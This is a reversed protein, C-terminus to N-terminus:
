LNPKIIQSGCVCLFTYACNLFNFPRNYVNSCHNLFNLWTDSDLLLKNFYKNTPEVGLYKSEIPRPHPRLIQIELGNGPSASAPLDYFVVQPGTCWPYGLYMKSSFLFFIKISSNSLPKKIEFVHVERLEEKEWVILPVHILSGLLESKTGDLWWPQRVSSIWCHTTYIRM